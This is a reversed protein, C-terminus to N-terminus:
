AKVPSPAGIRRGTISRPAIRVLYHRDHLYSDVPRLGRAVGTTHQATGHVVVSWGQKRQRDIADVEFAVPRSLAASLKTGARSRFVVCGAADLAYNIPFIEPMGDVVVALRGFSHVALLELCEPASLHELETDLTLDIDPAPGSSSM